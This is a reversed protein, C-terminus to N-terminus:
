SRSVVLVQIGSRCANEGIALGTERFMPFKGEHKVKSIIIKQVVFISAKEIKTINTKSKRREKKNELKRRRIRWRKQKKVKM